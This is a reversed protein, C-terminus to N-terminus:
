HLLVMKRMQVQSAFELRYFYTGSSCSHNLRDCGNWPVSYSGQQLSRDILRIVERGTVDYISLRVPGNGHIQFQIDTSPNFPNPYNQELKFDRIMAPQIKKVVKTIHGDSGIELTDKKDVYEKVVQFVSIPYVTLNMPEIAFLNRLYKVVQDSSAFTYITADDVPNGNIRINDVGAIHHIPDIQTVIFDLNTSQILYDFSQTQLNVQTMLNQLIVKLYAGPLQFRVLRFGLGDSPDFGYSYMRFVDAATVPGPYIDEVIHGTAEIACDASDVYALMARTVLNGCPTDLGQYLFYDGETTTVTDSPTVTSNIRERAYAIPQFPDGLVPSYQQVIGLRLQEVVAETNPEAPIDSTIEQLTYDLVRTSVGNYVLRLKGVWRYFEGAQVIPINNVYIVEKIVDHSHGGIIADVGSLYPAIAMDNLKGLHSLLIVVQCGMGRLEATKTLVTPVLTTDIFVPAPSSEINAAPTTLGLLGIKVNGRQVIAYARIYSNLVPVAATNLANTCLINFDSDPQAMAILNGLQESGADFEHNGLCLADFGLSNLIQLEPVGFFANFALSGVMFDGVHVTIPNPETAKWMGIVSAARAIGGYQNNGYPMLNSHSDNVHIITLTDLQSFALNSMLVLALGYLMISKSYKM